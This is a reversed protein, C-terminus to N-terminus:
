REVARHLAGLLGAARGHDGRVADDTAGQLERLIEPGYFYYQFYDSPVSRMTVALQLMRRDFVDFPEPRRAAGGVGRGAAADPGRRRLHARLVLRQPQHRGDHGERTGPRPRSGAPHYRPFYLLGECMSWIPVDTFQTVAQSVLNVPNTYNFIVAKPAVAEIDAVIGTFANISRLAMFFGGPGQTEQGIM